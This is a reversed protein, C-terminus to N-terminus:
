LKAYKEWLKRNRETTVLEAPLALCKKPNKAPRLRYWPATMEQAIV